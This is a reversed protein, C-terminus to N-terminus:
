FSPTELSSTIIEVRCFSEKIRLKHPSNAVGQKDLLELRAYSPIWPSPGVKPTTAVSSGHIDTVMRVFGTPIGTDVGMRILRTEGSFGDSSRETLEM